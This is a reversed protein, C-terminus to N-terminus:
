CICVIGIRRTETVVQSELRRRGHRGKGQLGSIGRLITKFLSIYNKKHPPIVFFFRVASEHGTLM